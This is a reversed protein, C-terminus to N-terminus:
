PTSIARWTERCLDTYQGTQLSLMLPVALSCLTTQKVSGVEVSGHLRRLPNNQLESM